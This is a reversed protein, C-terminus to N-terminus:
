MKSGIALPSTRMRPWCSKRSAGDASRARPRSVPVGRGSRTVEGDEHGHGVASRDAIRKGEPAVVEGVEAEMLEHLVGLGVGVSLALPGEKAAGALEGLAEIVAAPPAEGREQGAAVSAANRDEHRNTRRDEHVSNGSAV